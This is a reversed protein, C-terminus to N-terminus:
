EALLLWDGLNLPSAICCKKTWKIIAGRMVLCSKINATPSSYTFPPPLPLSIRCTNQCYNCPYLSHSLMTALPLLFALCLHKKLFFFSKFFYPYQTCPVLPSFLAWLHHPALFLGSSLVRSNTPQPGLLSHSPSRELEGAETHLLTRPARWFTIGSGQKRSDPKATRPQM